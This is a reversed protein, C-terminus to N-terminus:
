AEKKKKVNVHIQTNRYTNKYPIDTNRTTNFFYFLAIECMYYSVVICYEWVLMPQKPFKVAMELM